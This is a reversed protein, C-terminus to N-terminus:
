DGWGNFWARSDFPLKDKRPGPGVPVGVPLIVRVLKDDPIALIEAIKAARGHVRLWGDVWVSAYGLATIALLMNEVLAACDEVQFDYGEYIAEPRRDVVCVLYAQATQMARQTPHLTRVEALLTPDDVVVVRTTEANKGSPAALGAAVIRRLDAQPVPRDQFEGRYSYREAIADFLDM